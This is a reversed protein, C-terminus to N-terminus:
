HESGILIRIKELLDRELRENALRMTEIEEWEEPSHDDATLEDIMASARAVCGLAERISALSEDRGLPQDPM